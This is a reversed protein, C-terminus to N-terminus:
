ISAYPRGAPLAKKSKDLVQIPTEDVQLYGQILVRHKLTEYLPDLLNCVAEQWGNITSSSLKIDERKFREIQRYIPLHDVFKDIIIQALLGPGAIGKEIPFTPLDAIVGTHNLSESDEPKIYKPRIYRKIFLRAPILELQDTVEKGICKMESTDEQPEIVIEEVPLHSPLPLRGPHNERKNKSRVYQIVEQEMEHSEEQEVEFPLSLQGDETNQVFRERKAGFLLRKFQDIQFQMESIQSGMKSVQTELLQNRKILQQYTLKEQRM